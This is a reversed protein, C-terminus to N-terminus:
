RNRRNNTTEPQPAAEELEEPSLFRTIDVVMFVDLMEQGMLVRADVDAKIFGAAKAKEEIEADTAGEGRWESLQEPSAVEKTIPNEFRSYGGGAAGSLKLPGETVQNKVKLVRIIYFFQKENALDNVFKQLSDHSGRFRFRVPYKHVVAGPDVEAGGPEGPIPDRSFNSLRVADSAVLKRLLFDIAELEYDLKPVLDQAPVSSAYADFGLQFEGDGEIELGEKSAFARFETVRTKIVQQFDTNRLETNFERQFSKLTALLSDVSTRYTGVSAELAEANEESPYPVRRELSEITGVKQDWDERAATYKGYSSVAFYAGGGIALLSVVGFVTLWVKAKM